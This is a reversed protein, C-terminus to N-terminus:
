QIPWGEMGKVGVAVIKGPLAPGVAAAQEAVQVVM